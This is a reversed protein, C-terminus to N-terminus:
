AAGRIPTVNGKAQPKALFTAWDAMLRRRRDLMDGRRYAAEVKNGVAHALAMECVESPYATREASWDRFTSRFGHPVAQAKMRRMVASLTMDSLPGGRPAPFAQDTGGMRPLAKLLALAAASLPVRHERGAKMRDAPVTWLGKDMDIESWKAGRVEGSRAATLIAFELAKAGMGEVSRLRVMFAGVEDVAIAKHHAPKAVRSPKALLKDLHGRWRAPNQWPGDIQGRAYAADLVQAIRGRIRTATETKTSWLPELIKLVHALGVDGVALPGIEPYAYTALTNTWQQRHKPNAWSSEHAAIFAEAAEQFTTRKAATALLAQKAM